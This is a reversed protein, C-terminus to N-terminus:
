TIMNAECQTKSLKPCDEDVFSQWVLGLYPSPYFPYLASLGRLPPLSPDKIWQVPQPQKFFKM